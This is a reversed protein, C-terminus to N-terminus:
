FHFMILFTVVYKLAIIGKYAYHGDEEERRWTIMSNKQVYFEWSDSYNVDFPNEEKNISEMCEKTVKSTGSSAFTAQSKLCEIREFESFFEEISQDLHIREKDWDFAYIGVASM